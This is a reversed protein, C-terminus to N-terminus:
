KVREKYSTDAYWVYGNSLNVCIFAVHRALAVYWRRCFDSGNFCSLWMVVFLVAWLVDAVLNRIGDM